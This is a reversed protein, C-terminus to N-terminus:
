DDFIKYQRQMGEVIAAIAENAKERNAKGFKVGRLAWNADFRSKPSTRQVFVGGFAECGPVGKKVAEAIALELKSSAILSRDGPQQPKTLDHETRMHETRLHETAKLPSHELPRAPSSIIEVLTKMVAPKDPGSQLSVCGTHQERLQQAKQMTWDILELGKIAVNKWASNSSKKTYPSFTKGALAM